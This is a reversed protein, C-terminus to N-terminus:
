TMLTKGNHNTAKYVLDFPAGEDRKDHLICSPPVTESVLGECFM